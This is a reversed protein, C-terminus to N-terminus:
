VCLINIFLQPRTKLTNLGYHNLKRLYKLSIDPLQDILLNYKNYTVCQYEFLLPYKIHSYKRIVTKQLNLNKCNTM